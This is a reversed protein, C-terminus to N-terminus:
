GGAWGGVGRGVGSRSCENRSFTAAVLDGVTERQAAPGVLGVILCVRQGRFPAGLFLLLFPPVGKIKTTLFAPFFIHLFPLLGLFHSDKSFFFASRPSKRFSLVKGPFIHMHSLQRKRKEFTLSEKEGTKM